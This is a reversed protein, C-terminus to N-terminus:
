VRLDFLERLAAAYQRGDGQAGSEKLRVIPYHLMKSVIARTMLNITERDQQTIDGMKSLARALEAQRIAEARDVLASIVPVVELSEWWAMFRQVEQAVMEEVKLSERQRAQLNTRCVEQLDDINYLRVGPVGAVDPHIDRPVAIDILIIPRDPRGEMATAVLEPHIVYSESDTSSIAVDAQRLAWVLEDFGLAQGGIASAVHEVRSRTRGVVLVRAAGHAVMSKAAQQGMEGAGIVLVTRHCFSGLANRALEVAATSVSTAHRSIGTASRARKGVEVAQRFLRSLVPGAARHRLAIQLAERVQGLVQPEGVVMSDMGAAVRMLHRVAGDHVYHYLLHAFEEEPVGHWESLFRRLEERGAELDDVAAYVETRNCTSLIVGEPVRQLMSALAAPVEAKRFLLRERLEVSAQRHSLGLAIINSGARRAGPTALGM